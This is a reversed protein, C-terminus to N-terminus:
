RIVKDARALMNPPIPLGIQKATKLNLVLSIKDIGQVPLENPKEGTLVRQVYKASLRGTEYRSVSYSALGGKTVSADDVFMTAFKKAKATDIILQTHVVAIADSVEFYSDVEGVKLAQLNAELEESSAIHREIFQVGMQGAAERVLQVSQSAVRNRPDYFTVVRHLKPVIEKLIALRKVTLESDRYFVGTLRGGPKAFSAVLGLEVPDAGACFVIPTGATARKTALTVSTQTTYLLNVKEQELSKAAKEAAAANGKTDRIEMTFHKRETLGLQKLGVRLGDIVQYWAGGATVVGIRQIKPQQAQVPATTLVIALLGLFIQRRM